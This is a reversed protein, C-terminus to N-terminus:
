SRRASRSPARDDRRAPARRAPSAHRGNERLLIVGRDAKTFKFLALLIKDLLVDLERELGIDRTLEWTIRLREYDLRLQKADGASRRRLPPVGEDARRDADRHRAGRRARRRADRRSQAAPAAGRRRAPSRRAPGRRLARACADAGDAAGAPGSPVM